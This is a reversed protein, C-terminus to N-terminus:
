PYISFTRDRCNWLSVFCITLFPNRTQLESCYGEEILTGEPPDTTEDLIRIDELEVNSTEMKLKRIISKRVHQQLELSSTGEFWSVTISGRDVPAYEPLDDPSGFMRTSRRRIHGLLGHKSFRSRVDEQLRLRIKRRGGGTGASTQVVMLPPHVPAGFSNQHTYSFSRQQQQQQQQQVLQQQHQELVHPPPPHRQQQPPHSPQQQLRQEPLVARPHMHLGEDVRPLLVLNDPGTRGYLLSPSTGDGPITWHSAAPHPIVSGPADCAELELQEPIASVDPSASVEIEKVIDSASLKAAGREEESEKEDQKKEVMDRDGNVTEQQQVTDLTNEGVIAGGDELFSEESTGSENHVVFSDQKQDMPHASPLSAASVNRIFEETAANQSTDRETNQTEAAADPTSTEESGTERPLQKNDTVDEDDEDDDQLLDDLLSPPDPKTSESRDISRDMSREDKMVFVDGVELSGSHPLPGVPTPEAVYSEETRAVAPRTSDEPPYSSPATEKGSTEVPPETIEEAFAAAKQREMSEAEEEAPEADELQHPPPTLSTRDDVVAQDSSSDSTGVPSERASSGDSRGEMGFSIQLLNLWSKGTGVGESV